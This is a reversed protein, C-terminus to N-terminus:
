DEIEFANARGSAPDRGTIKVTRKRKAAPTEAAPAAPKEAPAAMLDNLGPPTGPEAIM